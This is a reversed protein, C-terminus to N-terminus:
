GSSDTVVQYGFLAIAALLVLHLLGGVSIGGILGVFWALVLLLPLGRWALWAWGSSV